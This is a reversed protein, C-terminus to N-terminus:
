LKINEEYKGHAKWWKDIKNQITKNIDNNYLNLKQLQESLSEPDFDKLKNWALNLEQLGKPLNTPDFTAIQNNSLLLEKLGRPLHTPDFEPIKNNSLDLVQIRRPIKSTVLKALENNNLEIIELGLPLKSFDFSQIKNEELFLNKLKQPLNTPDFSTLENNSIILEQLGQPLNKPDFGTLTNFKLDLEKLEKPFKSTIVNKLHNHNLSIKQIGSPLKSFDFSQIKNEKLNLEILDEPTNTPDFSTLQNHKLNLQTISQPLNTLNFSKLDLHIYLLKININANNETSVQEIQEVVYGREDKPNTRSSMEISWTTYGFETEMWKPLVLNFALRFSSSKELDNLKKTIKESEDDSTTLDRFFEKDLSKNFSGLTLSIYNKMKKKDSFSYASSKEQIITKRIEEKIIDNLTINLTVKKLNKFTIKDAKKFIWKGDVKEMLQDINSDNQDNSLLKFNTKMGNNNNGELIVKVNNVFTVETSKPKPKSINDVCSIATAIPTAITALGMLSGLGIKKKNM